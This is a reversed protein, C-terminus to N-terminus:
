EKALPFQKLMEHRLKDWAAIIKDVHVQAAALALDRSAFGKGIGYHKDAFGVEANYTVIGKKNVFEAIARVETNHKFHKMRELFDDM